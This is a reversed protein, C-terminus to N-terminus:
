DHFWFKGLKGAWGAVLGGVVLPVGISAILQNTAVGLVLTVIGTVAVPRGLLLLLKWKNPTRERFREMKRM